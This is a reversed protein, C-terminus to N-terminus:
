VFSLPLDSPKVKQERKEAGKEKEMSKYCNKSATKAIWSRSSARKKKKYTAEMHALHSVVM